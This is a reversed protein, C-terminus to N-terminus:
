ILVTKGFVKIESVKVEVDQGAAPSEVLVGSAKISTGTQLLSYDFDLDELILQIGQPCSGDNCKIFCMNKQKRCTSIWGFVDVSDNPKKDKLILKIPM